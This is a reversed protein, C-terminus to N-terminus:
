GGRRKRDELQWEREIDKIAGIMARRLDRLLKEEDPTPPILWDGNEYARKDARTLRYPDSM